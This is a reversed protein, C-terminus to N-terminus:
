KWIVKIVRRPLLRALYLWRSKKRRGKGWAFLLNCGLGREVQNALSWPPAAPLPPPRSTEFAFKHM